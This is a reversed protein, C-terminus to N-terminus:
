GLSRFPDIELTPYRLFGRAAVTQTMGPHAKKPASGSDLLRVRRRQIGPERRLPAGRFSPSYCTTLRLYDNRGNNCIPTSCARPPRM